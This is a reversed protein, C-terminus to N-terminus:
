RRRGGTRGGGGAPRPAAQAPPRGGGGRENGGPGREVGHARGEDAHGRADHGGEFGRGRDHDGRDHDGRDHDGRDHDGRGRDDHDHGRDFGHGRDDHDHGRGWGERGRVGGRVDIRDGAFGYRGRAGIGYGFGFGFGVSMGVAVSPAWGRAGVFFGVAPAGVGFRLSEGFHWGVIGVHYEAGFSMGVTVRFPEYTGYWPGVYYMAGPERVLVEMGPTAAAYGVSFSREGPEIVRFDPGLVYIRMESTDKDAVVEVPTTGIYQITGGNPGTKPPPTLAASAQADEDIARTGGRPVHLVGMWPKGGVVLDYDVETLDDALPPGSVVLFGKDDLSVDRVEDTMEGPWTMTGTVDKTIQTGDPAKIQARVQGDASIDWAISGNDSEETVTSEATAGGAQPDAAASKSGCGAVALSSALVVTGLITRM